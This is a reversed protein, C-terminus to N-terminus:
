PRRPRPPRRRAAAPLAAGQTRCPGARAPRAGPHDADLRHPRDRDARLGALSPQDRVEELAAQGPRHGQRMPHPGRRPRPLPAPCRALRAARGPHRHRLLHLALRRPDRDPGTARPHPRERRVIVRMGPPYGAFLSAPLLGTLEAVAAHDRPDGHIDIAPTWATEPLAAIAAHERETVAWGVSFEAHVRHERLGRTHALLAKSAGAGDCRVLVPYGHRFEDPVQALAQDLVAILDAATNSGANGPRLMGALAENSNDCFALVPDLSHKFTAAASEKESHCVVITADIDIVLVARGDRDLLPTGNVLSAPLAAGTAEARQAWAVERAAARAAAIADLEADGISDLVRWCTSDSAVPGFLDGQDALTAIDSICEGGDALMVAVDVLVRCPDHATQPATRAAFVEVLRATLTTRDALDALLRAGVHSVVGAGDASVEVAARTRTAHV